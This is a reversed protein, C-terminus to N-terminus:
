KLLVSGFSDETRWMWRCVLSSTYVHAHVCVLVCVCLSLVKVAKLINLYDIPLEIM